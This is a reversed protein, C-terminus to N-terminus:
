DDVGEDNRNRLYGIFAGLSVIVGLGLIGVLTTTGTDPLQFSVASLRIAGFSDSDEAKLQREGIMQTYGLATASDRYTVTGDGPLQAVVQCTITAGTPLPKDVDCNMGDLTGDSRITVPTGEPTSLTYGELSPDFIAVKDLDAGGTNTVQYTITMSRDGSPIVATNLPTAGEESVLGGAISKTLSLGAYTNTATLSWNGDDPDLVSADAVPLVTFRAASTQGQPTTATLNQLRTTAPNSTTWTVFPGAPDEGLQENIICESNVPVNAITFTDGEGATVTAANTPNGAPGCTYTFTFDDTTYGSPTILKAVTVDRTDLQYVHAATVRHVPLATSEEPDPVLFRFSHNKWEDRVDDTVQIRNDANVTVGDTTMPTTGDSTTGAASVRVADSHDLFYTYPTRNRVTDGTVALEARPQTAPSTLTITCLAGPAVRFPIPNGSGANTPRIQEDVLTFGDGVSTAAVNLTQNVVQRGDLTCVATYTFDGTYVQRGTGLKASGLEVNVATWDYTNTVTITLSPTTGTTVPAPVTFPVTQDAAVDTTSSGVAVSISLTTDPRTPPTVERVQCDRGVPVASNITVTATDDDGAAPMAVPKWQGAPDDQCRYQITFTEPRFLSRASGELDKTVTLNGMVPAYQNVASVINSGTTLTLTRTAAPTINQPVTTTNTWGTTLTVAPGTYAQTESITCNAGVPLGTVTRRQNHTLTATGTLVSTNNPYATAYGTRTCQYSLTFNQGALQPYTAAPGTVLKGLDLSATLDFLAVWNVDCDVTQGASVDVVAQSTTGSQTITPTVPTSQGTSSLRTCTWEPRYRQWATATNTTPTSRFTVSGTPGTLLFNGTVDGAATDTTTATSLLQNNFLAQLNFQTKPTIGQEARRDASVTGTAGGMLVALSIGQANPGGLEVKVNRPQITSTLLMGVSGATGDCRLGTMAINNASGGTGTTPRLGGGCVSSYGPPTFSGLQSVGTDSLFALSEGQNTSEADAMVLGYSPATVGGTGTVTINRLEVSPNAIGSGVATYFSMPTSTPINSPARYYTVGNITNGFVASGWTPVSHTRISRLTGSTGVNYKVTFSMTYTDNLRITVQQGNASRATTESIGNLEIWCLSSDLYGGQRYHCGNTTQAQAEPARFPNDVPGAMVQGFLFATVLSLAVLIRRLTRRTATPSMIM